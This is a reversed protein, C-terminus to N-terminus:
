VDLFISVEQTNSCQALLDIWYIDHQKTMLKGDSVGEPWKIEQHNLFPQYTAIGVKGSWDFDLVCIKGDNRVMLNCPRLDGHCYGNTQMLELVSKCSQIVDDKKDPHQNFFELVNVATRRMDEMVVVKFRTTVTETFFHKPAYGSNALLQHLETCYSETFKVVLENGTTDNASFLHPNLEGTFTIHNDRFCQFYPFRPQHVQQQQAMYYCRLGEMSIKLARMIKAKKIMAASNHVEHVLWIPDVLRDVYVLEGFVAGSITLNPGAVEIIFGPAPCRLYKRNQLSQTYYACGERFCDSNTSCPENKVVIIALCHPNVCLDCESGLNFTVKDLQFQYGLYQQFLPELESIRDKESDYCQAMWFCLDNVFVYDERELNASKCLDVFEQFGTYYLTVDNGTVQCRHNCITVGKFNMVKDRAKAQSISPKDGVKSYASASHTLDIMTTVKEEVSCHKYGLYLLLIFFFTDCTCVSFLAQQKSINFPTDLSYEAVYKNWDTIKQGSHGIVLDQSKWESGPLDKCM